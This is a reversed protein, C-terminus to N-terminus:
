QRVGAQIAQMMWKGTGSNITMRFAFPVNALGDASTIAADTNATKATLGKIPWAVPPMNGAFEVTDQVPYASYTNPNPANPDDYTYEGTVNGAGSLLILAMSIQSPTIYTNAFEWETSGIGVTGASINGATAASIRINTVTLFDQFTNVTNTGNLTLSESIVAGNRNTGTILATQTTDGANASVIGVRQATVLNAVGSTVLTGNLTLNKAAAVAQALAIGTAAVAPLQLIKVVPNGM